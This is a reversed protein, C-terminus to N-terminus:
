VCLIHVSNAVWGANKLCMYLCYFHVQEFKLILILPPNSNKSYICYRLLVGRDPASNGTAHYKLIAALFGVNGSLILYDSEHGAQVYM